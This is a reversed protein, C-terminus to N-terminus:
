IAKYFKLSEIWIHKLYNEMYIIYDSRLSETIEPIIKKVYINKLGHERQFIYVISKIIVSHEMVTLGRIGQKQRQSFITREERLRDWKEPTKLGFILKM